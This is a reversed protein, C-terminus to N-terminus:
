FFNYFHRFDCFIKFSYFKFSFIIIYFTIILVLNNKCKQEHRWRSQFHLYKKNCFECNYKPKIDASKHSINPKNDASKHSINLKNNPLYITHYKKTHNCLSSKSSYTKNCSICRYESKDNVKKDM